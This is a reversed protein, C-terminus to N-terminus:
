EEALLRRAHRALMLEENTAIVRVTVRSEDASIV